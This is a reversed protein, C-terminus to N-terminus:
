TYQTFGTAQPMKGISFFTASILVAIWIKADCRCSPIIWNSSKIRLTEELM